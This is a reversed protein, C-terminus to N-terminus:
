GREEQVFKMVFARLRTYIERGLPTLAWILASRQHAVKQIYGKEKMYNMKRYFLNDGVSNMVAQLERFFFTEYEGMWLFLAVYEPPVSLAKSLKNILLATKAISHVTVDKRVIGLRAQVVKERYARKGDKRGASYGKEIHEKRSSSKGKALGEKYGQHRAGKVEKKRAEEASRLQGKFDLAQETSHGRLESVIKEYKDEMEQLAQERGERSKTTGLKHGNIKNTKQHNEKNLQVYAAVLDRYQQRLEFLSVKDIQKETLVSDKLRIRM